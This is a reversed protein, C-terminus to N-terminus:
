FPTDDISGSVDPSLPASEIESPRSANAPAESELWCKSGNIRLNTRGNYEENKLEAYMRRGILDHAEIDRDKDTFGLSKLKAKTIGWGESPPLTMYDRCAKRGWHVARFDVEFMINGSKSTKEVSNSVELLYVGPKLSGDDANWDINPM